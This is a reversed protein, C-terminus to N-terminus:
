MKWPLGANLNNTKSNSIISELNFSTASCGFWGEDLVVTKGFTDGFRSPDTGGANTFM